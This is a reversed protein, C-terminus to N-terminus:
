VADDSTPPRQPLSIRRRDTTPRLHTDSAVRDMLRRRQALELRVREWDVAQGLNLRERVAAVVEIEDSQEAIIDLVDKADQLRDDAQLLTLAHRYLRLATRSDGLSNHAEALQLALDADRPHSAVLRSLIEVALDFRGEQLVDALLEQGAALEGPHDGARRLLEILESRHEITPTRQIRRRAVDIAIGHNATRVASRVVEAQIRDLEPDGAAEATETLRVKLLLDEPRLRSAQVLMDRAFADDGCAQAINAAALLHRLAVARDGDRVAALGLRGQIQHHWPLRHVASELHSRAERRQGQAIAEDCARLYLTAALGDQRLRLRVQALWVLEDVQHPDLELIRELTAALAADDGSKELATASLRLQETAGRRDRRREYSKALWDHAQVDSPDLKSLMEYVAVLLDESAGERRALAPRLIALAEDRRGSWLLLEACEKAFDCRSPHRQILDQWCAIAEDLRDTEHFARAALELQFSAQETDGLLLFLRALHQGIIAPDADFEQAERLCRIAQDIQANGEYWAALDLLAQGAQEREGLAFHLDVLQRLPQEAKAGLDIARHLAAAAAAQDPLQAAAAICADAATPRDGVAEALDAIHFQIRPTDQGRAAARRYLGLAAKRHGAQAAAEAQAVLEAPTSLRLRRSRLLEAVAMAARFPPVLQHDLLAGAVKGDRFGQLFRQADDSLLSADVTEDDSILTDWPAPLTASVTALEDQRRLCELLLSGPAVSVGFQVQADCWPEPQVQDRFQVSPQSWGLVTVIEEEMLCDIADLVGDKSVLGMDVLGRVLVEPGASAPVVDLVPSLRDRSIVGAWLFARAVREVSNGGLATINGQQFRLVRTNGSAALVLEGSRRQTALSQILGPLDLIGQVRNGDPSM